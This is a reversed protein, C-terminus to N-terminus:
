PAFKALFMHGQLPGGGFDVAGGWLSGMVFANGSTDAAIGWAREASGTGFRKSWIHGGSSDLKALFIDFDGASTLPEGGFDVTGRFEGLVLANGSGDTAVDVGYQDSVDGFHKSWIHGGSSDLKAVFVDLGGWACTLPGGGFDVTGNFTGTVLANGWADTAIAVAAQSNVDGFSKSWIHGGSSDLKAVFIDTTVDDSTLPGGGFDVTGSFNGTVLANGSGDAAVAGGYQYTADGFRKSWLHGGSSDLKAVFTDLEGASTLPGGGFDVTGWFHGTVLVNGSGDAAIADGYQSKSANGFRRSWVHNGSSDLKAVFVDAFGTSALPGGGFDVTGDFYGTM